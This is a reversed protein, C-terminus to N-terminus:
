SAVRDENRGHPTRGSRVRPEAHAPSSLSNSYTTQPWVSGGEVSISGMRLPNLIPMSRSARSFFRRAMAACRECVLSRM